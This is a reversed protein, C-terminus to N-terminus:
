RTLSVFVYDDEESTRFTIDHNRLFPILQKRIVRKDAKGGSIIHIAGGARVVRICENIAGEMVEDLHGIANYLVVTDFRGDSYKLRTADMREFTINPYEHIHPSLLNDKIDFVIFRKQQRQRMYQFSLM